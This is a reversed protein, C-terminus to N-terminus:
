GQVQHWLPILSQPLKPHTFANQIDTYYLYNKVLPCVPLNLVCECIRQCLEWQSISTPPDIDGRRSNPSVVSKSFHLDLIYSVHHQM